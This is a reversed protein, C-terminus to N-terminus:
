SKHDNRKELKNELYRVRNELENLKKFCEHFLQGREMADLAWDPMEDIISSFIEVIESM